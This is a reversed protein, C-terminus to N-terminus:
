ESESTFKIDNIKGNTISITTGSLDKIMEFNFTGSLIKNTLDLNTIVVTGSVSYFADATSATATEKYVAGCQTKPPLASLTYTGADTGNITIVLSQGSLSTGTIIIKGQKIVTVRTVTVWNQGNITATMKDNEIIDPVGDSDTDSCSCFLSIALIFLLTFSKLNM